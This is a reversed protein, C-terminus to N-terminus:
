KRVGTVLSNHGGIEATDIREFGAETLWQTYESRTYTSGNENDVFMSLGFIIPFVPGTRENNPLFDVVAIQGGPKLASYLRKFLNRSSHEGVIHVIHGVVALDFCNEGFEVVNLDGPLFDYRDQVGHRKLYERTVDLVNSSDQATIHSQQHAEAIAIGWIGSGCAVDLVQMNQHSTGATLIHACRRAPERNVLHLYPVLNPYFLKAEEEPRIYPKGTRIVETLHSWGEWQWDSGLFGGLYNPQGSVLFEAALPTLEYSGDTKNLVQFVVLADLLMCMGRESAEAVQAIEKATKKGAAIHSFVGLQLSVTLVRSLTFSTYMQGLSELTLGIKEQQMLQSM